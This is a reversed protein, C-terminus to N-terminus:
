KGPNKRYMNKKIDLICIYIYIHIYIHIYINYIRIIYHYISSSVYVIYLPVYMCIYGPGGPGARGMLEWQCSRAIQLDYGLFSALDFMSVPQHSPNDFMIFPYSTPPKLQNSLLRIIQIVPQHHLLWRSFYSHFDIPLIVDWIHFPFYFMNSVVLWIM